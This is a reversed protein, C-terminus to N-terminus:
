VDYEPEKRGLHDYKRGVGVVSAVMAWPIVMRTDVTYGSLSTEMFDVEVRSGVYAQIACVRGYRGCDGSATDYDTGDTCTVRQARCWKARVSM